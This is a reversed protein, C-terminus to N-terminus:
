IYQSQLLQEKRWRIALLIVYAACATSAALTLWLHEVAFILPALFLRVAYRLSEHRAIFVAMPPSLKYYTSVLVRGPPNTLLYHDRFERLVMVKPHLYSGYAATAIFCGGGGGGGSAPPSPAAAQVITPSGTYPNTTDVPSSINAAPETPTAYTGTSNNSVLLYLTDASSLTPITITGDSDGNYQSTNNVIATISYAAPKSPYTITTQQPSAASSVFSFYQFSYEPLAVPPISISANGTSPITSFTVSPYRGKENLHSKWDNLKFRKAFGLFSGPLDSGKTAVAEAIVPLMPIDAGSSSTKTALLEWIGKIFSSQTAAPSFIEALYRNFVWRSYGSDTPSNLAASTNSYYSAADDYLQNVSDYTEDELWSSTAEAYWIDFYYNYGYQIAHQFEHAATIKLMALPTYIYGSLDNNIEIFSTASQNTVIDSITLGLYPNIKLLFVDYPMNPPQQYGMETIERKYVAEFTDAVTEVWDPIGNNNADALPPADTGSTAYHIRFHSGNSLIITENALAPQELYKALTKQTSSELKKWDSRLEKRLPMGCREVSAPAAKLAAKASTPMEGFKQLYYNDLEGSIAAGASLILASLLVAFFNRM